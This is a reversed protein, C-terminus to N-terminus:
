QNLGEDIDRAAWVSISGGNVPFTGWGDEEITVEEQHHGLYDVFVEGAHATSVQMRKDGGEGNSIIAALGDPFAENGQRTWGIINPDDFYNYQDGYAFTRRIFLLKDIIEQFAAQGFEGEIGYYDGYFITPYGDQSLLIIGYALPKFWDQVTSELSQGRQTDHNDVFTVANWPSDAMLTGDFIQRLDYAKGQEGAEYFNMHLRVDVLDFEYDIDELYDKKTEFDANWYEGFVYFNEPGLNDTLIKVLKAIVTREIHKIADLRFGSIGTTEIFWKAWDQVHQIVEPHSFDIDNFMLYDFNGKEGDVEENDAWGKNEGQIQFIGVDDHRADYDLGSFHYWHWEFDNYQKNRGPFTFHTYGEIEYPESIPQQRNEPDMKMVTFTEKKDGNAKHNLVIDAIPNIGVEKLRKIAEIYEDKTGYKTRISGNQDFEGLDFIDYVGYGVDNSRTGKFAPPMWVKTIGISALHEADEKLRNWHQGDDALYWEFYQMLVGNTNVM